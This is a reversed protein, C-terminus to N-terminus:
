AADGQALFHFGVYPTGAVDLAGGADDFVLRVPLGARVADPAIGRLTGKLSPGGALDVIASVFPVAVGPYSRHVLCWSYVVGTQEAAFAKPGTRSGCKRCVM